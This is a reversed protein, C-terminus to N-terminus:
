VISSFSVPKEDVGVEVEYVLDFSGAVNTGINKMAIEDSM